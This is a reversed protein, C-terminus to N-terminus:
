PGSRESTTAGNRTAGNTTNANTTNANTTNASVGPVKGLYAERISPDDLLERAPGELVISGTQLVYGRQAISLALEANQEVILVSVGSTRAFEEITDLVRDVFVPSLGMTPEDMCILRPRSMLARGFALMQQEGGSFTGAHQRRREGLRPFMGYVRGLDSRIERKDGRTFAGTLLNEEVSMAPFVRRAEPVSALGRRIRQATSLGNVVEGDLLVQGARPRQLGLITKMTTSKGSANGGLLSVIEGREVYLSIGHLAQSSGYFVDVDRLELLRERAV